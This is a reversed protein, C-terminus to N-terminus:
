LCLKGEMTILTAIDSESLDVDDYNKAILESELKELDRETTAHVTIWISDEHAFGVRKLGPRGVATFPAKIRRIGDETLLTKDGMPMISICESKHIKGTLLTGKPIFVERAYLGKAFYHTTKIQMKEFPAALMASELREIQERVVLPDGFTRCGGNVDIIQKIFPTLSQDQMM